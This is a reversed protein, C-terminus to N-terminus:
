GEDDVVFMEKVDPSIKLTPECYRQMEKASVGPILAVIVLEDSHVELIGLETLVRQVRLRPEKTQLSNVIWPNAPAPEDCIGHLIAQAVPETPPPQGAPAEAEGSASLRVIRTAPGFREIHQDFPTKM